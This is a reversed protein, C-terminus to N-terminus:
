KILRTQPHASYWGFWFARHAPLRKMSQGNPGVLRDEELRWIGGSQDRALRDRDYSVLKAKGRQYVRNAGSSDTLVVVNLGALRDDHIPHKMLFDASIALQEAPGAASRLALVEAKNPLRSDLKPVGFMLRDSAFYNRYAVGERYDREHGTELSLVTTNPHRKKWEGWTSTVVYLSHLVIGKGVLPGVVPKGDFTSWLSKTAHDYMLKNSRYLFGSTGLEHQVGNVTTDYLIMAGCLTCYVGNLERGAIRDKFMEHWALIRKPYARVDYSLSAATDSSSTNGREGTSRSPNAMPLAVGFIIDNDALYSAAQASIMVPNKLPPIGDRRVGGWRIEDLRISSKAQNRFYDRFGPDIREYLQAKFESYEPHPTLNQAWAWQYLENLDRAPLGSVKKLHEIVLSETGSNGMLGLMELLMPAYDNRWAAVVKTLSAESLKTDSELIALFTTIPLFTAPNSAASARKAAVKADSKAGSKENSKAISAANAERNSQALAPQIPHILLGACAQLLVPLIMGFLSQIAATIM